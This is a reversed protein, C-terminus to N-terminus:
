VLAQHDSKALAWLQGPSGAACVGAMPCAQCSAPCEAGVRKLYGMRCLDELMMKVLEPTTDLERALDAVRRTGGSRLLELLQDLV